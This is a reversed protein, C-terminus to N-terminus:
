VAACPFYKQGCLINDKEHVFTITMGCLSIYQVCTWTNHGVLGNKIKNWRTRAQRVEQVENVTRTVGVRSMGPTQM